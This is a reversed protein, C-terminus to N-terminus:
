ANKLFISLFQHKKVVPFKFFFYETQPNFIQGILGDFNPMKELCIM